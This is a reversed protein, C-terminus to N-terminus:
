PSASHVDVVYVEGLRQRRDHYGRGDHGLRHV